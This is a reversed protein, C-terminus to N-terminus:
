VELWRITHVQPMNNVPQGAWEGFTKCERNKKDVCFQVSWTISLDQVIVGGKGPYNVLWTIVWRFAGGRAGIADSPPGFPGGYAGNTFSLSPILSILGSPDTLDVPQNAESRYLNGDGGALGM